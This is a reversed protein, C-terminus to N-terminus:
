GLYYDPPMPQSSLRAALAEACREAQDQSEHLHGCPYSRTVPNDVIQARRERADPPTEPATKGRHTVRM